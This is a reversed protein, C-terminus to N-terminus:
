LSRPSGSYIRILAYYIIIVTVIIIISSTLSM